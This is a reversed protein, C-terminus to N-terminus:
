GRNGAKPVSRAKGGPRNRPGSKPNPRAKPKPKPKAWGKGRSQATKGSRAPTIVEAAPAEGKMARILSQLTDDAVPEVTGRSLPGLDIPGYATRILRNVKLGLHELVRKVERNKGEKLAISLWLNSGQQREIEAEIPGYSVGDVTIGGALGKLATESAEGYARVRYRRVLGSSPLELWRAFEGDNTLLLLGETNIDLRGVTIVRPMRKPLAEFVTARGEPDRATTVLGAPKHFKWLGTPQIGGVPKGDVTVGETSTILTAPTEVRKGAISIRGDAIMAEVQRRSAVGARALVKAIREGVPTNQNPTETM